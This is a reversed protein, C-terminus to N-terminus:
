YEVPIFFPMGFRYASGFDFATDPLPRSVGNRDTIDPGNYPRPRDERAYQFRFEKLLTSRLTFILSGTGAHSHDQEIANASRGWSDVDFTGNEQESWTYNYRLTALHRASANWDVKGLFVRADNTRAIPLNEGPSGLAAFASNPRECDPKTFTM